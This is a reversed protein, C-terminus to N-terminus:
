EIGTVRVDFVYHSVRPAYNKVREIHEVSFRWGFGQLHSHDMVIKELSPLLHETAWVWEGGERVNEHVHLMGGEQRLVQLAVPWASRSSPILGLLVRHACHRLQPARKLLTTNDGPWLTALRPTTTSFTTPTMSLPPSPCSPHCIGEDGVTVRVGHRMLNLALCTLADSNWECAHLLSAGAKVLLPLSFYGIGAYLDVVTEGFAGVLGGMRAKETVNGSSFMVRSADFTYALGNEKVEVWAGFGIPLHALSSPPPLAFEGSIIGQIRRVPPLTFSGAPPPPSCLMRLGSARTGGAPLIEGAIAVRATQFSNALCRWLASALPTTPLPSHQSSPSPSHFSSGGYGRSCEGRADHDACLFPVLQRWHPSSFSFKPLILIDSLWEVKGPFGRGELGGPKCLIAVLEVASVGGFVDLHPPPNLSSSRRDGAVSTATEVAAGEKNKALAAATAANAADEETLTSLLLTSVSSSARSLAALGGFPDKPPEYARLGPKPPPSLTTSPHRFTALLLLPPTPPGGEVEVEETCNNKVALAALRRCGEYGEETLPIGILKCEEGESGTVSSSSSSSPPPSSVPGMCRGWDFWDKQQLEVKVRQAFECPLTLVHNLVGQATTTESGQLVGRNGREVVM